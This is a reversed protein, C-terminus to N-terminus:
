FYSIVLLSLLLSRYFIYKYHLFDLIACMKIIIQSNFQAPKTGTRLHWKIARYIGWRRQSPLGLLFFGTRNRKEKSGSSTYKLRLFIEQWCFSFSLSKDLMIYIHAM